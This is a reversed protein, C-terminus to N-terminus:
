KDKLYDFVIQKEDFPYKENGIITYTEHGKGALLVIDDLKAISLAYEIAEKRDVIIKYEVKTSRVGDIIDDIIKKPDEFRPNDSTVIALDCNDGVVKGMQPRKSKDRNGGAGFVVILRGKKFKSITTLVNLLGDPSHAFDIILTYNKDIAVVEFRGRIGLTNEIGVKITEKDIGMAFGCSAAALANYVSFKGPINVKIFISEGMFSLKFNVCDIGYEIESASVDAKKDIGYTILSVDKTLSNMIEDSYSDDRNIINYKSTKYFLKLKSKYYNEMTVHYDLHDKSLNTFIGIDFNMYEVRKLDLAHSSVEMICANFDNEVMRNLNDQLVLPNPTTNVLKTISDGICSGITGIVGAKINNAYLINKILYSTSTKGNTGTIGIMFLKAWPNNYFKSAIYALFDTTDKVLIYTVKEIIDIPYKDEYIICSAGNEIAQDVFKHGDVNFGKICIFLFGELVNRSDLSVGFIEKNTDGIIEVIPYDEILSNLNM